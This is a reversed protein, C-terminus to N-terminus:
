QEGAMLNEFLGRNFGTVNLFQQVRHDEYSELMINLDLDMIKNLAKLRAEKDPADGYAREIIMDAAIARCFAMAAVVYRPELGVEVHRKGIRYREEFYSEKYTGEALGVLWRTLHGKLAEIRGPEAQLIERLHDFRELQEYFADVVAPGHQKLAPRMDALLRYEESTLAELAQMESIFSKSM